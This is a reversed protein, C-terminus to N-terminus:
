APSHPPAIMLKRFTQESLPHKLITGVTYLFSPVDLPKVFCADFARMAPDSQFDQAYATVAVAPVTRINEDNRSRVWAMFHTGTERPMQLDCAILSPVANSVHMRGHAASPASLVDAGCYTLIGTLFDLSDRHDDVVLITKGTLDPYGFRAPHAREVARLEALLM